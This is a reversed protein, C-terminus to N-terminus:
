KKSNSTEEKGTRPSMKDCVKPPALLGALEGGRLNLQCGATLLLCDASALLLSAVPLEYNGNVM